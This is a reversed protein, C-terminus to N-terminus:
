WDRQSNATRFFVREGPLLRGRRTRYAELSAPTILEGEVQVVRVTGPWHVMGDSIPWTVDLWGASGGTFESDPM